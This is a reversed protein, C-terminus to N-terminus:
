CQLENANLVTNLEQGSHLKQKNQELAQVQRNTRNPTGQRYSGTYYFLFLYIAFRVYEFKVSSFIKM